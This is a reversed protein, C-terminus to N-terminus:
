PAFSPEAPAKHVGRPCIRCVAQKKIANNINLSTLPRFQLVIYILPLKISGIQMARIRLVSQIFGLIGQLTIENLKQDVNLSKHAM